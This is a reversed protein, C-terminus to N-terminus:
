SITLLFLFLTALLIQIFITLLLKKSPTSTRSLLRQPRYRYLALSLTYIVAAAVTVILLNPGEPDDFFFFMARSCILSTIGLTLLTTKKSLSPM